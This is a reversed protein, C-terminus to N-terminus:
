EGTAKEKINLEEIISSLSKTSPKHKKRLAAEAWPAGTPSKITTHYGCCRVIETEGNGLRHIWNKKVLVDTVICDGNLEPHSKSQLVVEEDVNYLNM